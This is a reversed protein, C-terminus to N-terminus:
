VLAYLVDANVNGNHRSEDGVNDHRRLDKMILGEVLQLEDIFKM